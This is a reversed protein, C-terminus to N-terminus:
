FRSTVWGGLHEHACESKLLMGRLSVRRRGLSPRTQPITSVGLCNSAGPSYNLGLLLSFFQNMIHSCRRKKRYSILCRVTFTFPAPIPGSPSARPVQLTPHVSAPRPTIPATPHHQPIFDSFSSPIKRPSSDPFSIQHPLKLDLIAPHRTLLMGPFSVTFPWPSLRYHNEESPLQKAYLPCHCVSSQTKPPLLLYYYICFRVQLM